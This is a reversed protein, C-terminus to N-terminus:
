LAGVRLTQAHPENELVAHLLGLSVKRRVCAVHVVEARVIRELRGPHVECAASSARLRTGPRPVSERRGTRADKDM